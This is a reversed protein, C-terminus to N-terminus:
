AEAVRTARQTLEKILELWKASIGYDFSTFGTINGGPRGLGEVFGAGVPDIGLVYVIPITRTREQLAALNAGGGATLILHRRRWWFRRSKAGTPIAQAQM